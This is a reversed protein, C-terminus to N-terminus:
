VEKLDSKKGLQKQHKGRGDWGMGVGGATGAAAFGGAIRRTVFRHIQIGHSQLCEPCSFSPSVQIETSPENSIRCAGTSTPLYGMIKYPKICGLHHLTEEM